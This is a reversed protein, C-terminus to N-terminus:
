TAQSMERFSTTSGMQISYSCSYGKQCDIRENDIKKLLETLLKEKTRLEQETIMYGQPCLKDVTAGKKPVHIVPYIYCGLPRKEYIKCKRDSRSYFYCFGDVNRLCAGEENVVAFEELFYGEKELRQIDDSSLEMM